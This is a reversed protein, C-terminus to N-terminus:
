WVSSVLSWYGKTVQILFLKMRAVTFETAARSIPAHAAYAKLRIRKEPRRSPRSPSISTWINGATSAIM